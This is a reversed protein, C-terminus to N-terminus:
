VAAAITHRSAGALRRTRGMGLGFKTALLVEKRRAGLARGLCDESAGDNYADATDILTVGLDIARGVVRATAARGIRGGFNNGGLGVASVALASSGLKRTEM